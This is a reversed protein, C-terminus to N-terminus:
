GQDDIVLSLQAIFGRTWGSKNGKPGGGPPTRFGM